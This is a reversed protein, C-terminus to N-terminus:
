EMTAKHMETSGFRKRSTRQRMQLMVADWCIKCSGRLEACRVQTAFGGLVNLNNRKLQIKLKKATRINMEEYSSYKLASYGM